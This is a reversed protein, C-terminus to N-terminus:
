RQETGELGSSGTGGFRPATSGSKPPGGPFGGGGFSRNIGGGTASTTASSDAGPKFPNSTSSAPIKPVQGVAGGTTPAPPFTQPRRAPPTGPQQTGLGGSSTVPPTFGRSSQQAPRAQGGQARQGPPNFSRRAGSNQATRGARSGGNGAVGGDYGPSVGSPKAQQMPLEEKIKAPDFNSAAASEKTPGHAFRLKRPVAPQDTKIPKLSNSSTQLGSGGNQNQYASTGALGQSRNQRARTGTSVQRLTPNSESLTSDLDEEPTETRAVSSQVSKRGILVSALRKPQNIDQRVSLVYDTIARNYGTVNSLFDQQNKAKMRVAELVNAVPSQGNQM